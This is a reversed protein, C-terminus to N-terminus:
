DLKVVQGFRCSECVYMPRGDGVSKPSRKLYLAAVGVGLGKERCKPCTPVHPYPLYPRQAQAVFYRLDFMFMTNVTPVFWRRTLKIVSVTYPADVGAIVYNGQKFYPVTPVTLQIVDGVGYDAREAGYLEAWNNVPFCRGYEIGRDNVLLAIERPQRDDYYVTRGNRLTYRGSDIM